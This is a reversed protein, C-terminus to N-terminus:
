GGPKRYITGREVEIFGLKEYFKLAAENSAMTQAEFTAIGRRRLLRAAEGLLYSAAGRRRYDLAVMLEFLGATPMGWGTSLPQVDWFSATALIDDKYKDILQFRNRQLGGWVCAEWWTKSRPDLQETIKTNRKLNRIERSVPPRFSALDAQFICVQDVVDYNARQCAEHFTLDTPLVGPIESGGYLGLYFSNLPQVGGAYLVKAGRTRQYAESAALLEDALAESQHSAHLMLVHTTGFSTDLAMGADDPGFGAHVFGVPREDHTAVILGQRDFHMKSLVGYELLM